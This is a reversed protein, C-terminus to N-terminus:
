LSKIRKIDDETDKISKMLDNYTRRLKEFSSGLHHYDHLQKTSISLESSALELRESLMKKLSELSTTLGQDYTESLITLHLIRIRLLVSDALHNFYTDMTQNKQKEFNLKFEQIILWFVDLIELIVKVFDTVQKSLSLKQHILNISTKQIKNCLQKVSEVLLDAEQQKINKGQLHPQYQSVLNVVNIYKKQISKDIYEIVIKKNKEDIQITSTSYPNCYALIQQKQEESLDTTSDTFLTILESILFSFDM